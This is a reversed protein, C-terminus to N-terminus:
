KPAAGPGSVREVQRSWRYQGAPSLFAFPGVVAGAGIEAQQCVSQTVTAGEGVTTDRLLSGPGVRAGAAVTTSGELQTGPGIEVDRDLRM